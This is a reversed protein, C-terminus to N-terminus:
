VFAIDYLLYFFVCPFTVKAATRSTFTNEILAEQEFFVHGFKSNEPM